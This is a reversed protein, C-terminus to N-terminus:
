NEENTIDSMFTMPYNPNLRVWTEKFDEGLAQHTYWFTHLLKMFSVDGPGGAGYVPQVSKQLEESQAYLCFNVIHYFFSIRGVNKLEGDLRETVGGGGSDTTQGIILTIEGDYQYTDIHNLSVDLAKSVEESSGRSADADLRIPQM